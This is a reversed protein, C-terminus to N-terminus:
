KHYPEGRLIKFSRYIQELLVVRALNHPLTVAGFSLRLNARDLVAPTLGTSGGIVFVLRDYGEFTVRDVMAAVDESTYSIGTRDLAVVFAAPDCVALIDAGELDRSRAEGGSRGPDRDTISVVTVSTYRTLRKLYEACAEEWFREKLKGVAVVEISLM